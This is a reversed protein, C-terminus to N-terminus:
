ILQPNQLCMMAYYMFDITFISQNQAQLVWWGFYATFYFMGVKMLMYFICKAIYLSMSLKSNRNLLM